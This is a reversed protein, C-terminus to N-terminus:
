KLQKLENKDQWQYPLFNVPEALWLGGCLWEANQTFLDTRQLATRHSKNHKCKGVSEALMLAVTTTQGLQSPQAIWRLIHGSALHFICKFKVSFTHHSTAEPLLVIPKLPPNMFSLFVRWRLQKNNNHPQQYNNITNINSNLLSQSQGVGYLHLCIM